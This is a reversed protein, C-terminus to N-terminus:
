IVVDAMLVKEYCEPSSVQLIRGYGPHVKSLWCMNHPSLMFGSCQQQKACLFACKEIIGEQTEFQYDKYGYFGNCYHTKLFRV